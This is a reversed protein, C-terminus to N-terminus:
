REAHTFRRLKDTIAHIDSAAKGTPRYDLVSQGITAAEAFAIRQTLQSTFVPLGM